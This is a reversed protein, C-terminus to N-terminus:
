SCHHKVLSHCINVVGEKRFNEPSWFGHTAVLNFGRGTNEYMKHDLESRTTSM